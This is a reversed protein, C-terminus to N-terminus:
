ANGASEVAIQRVVQENGCQINQVVIAMARDMSMTRQDQLAILKGVVNAAIALIEEASLKEAHRAMLHCLEQKTAEHEANAIVTRINM